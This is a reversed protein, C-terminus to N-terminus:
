FAFWRKTEKQRILWWSKFDDYSLPDPHCSQTLLVVPWPMDYGLLQSIRGLQSQALKGEPDGEVCYAFAGQLTCETSQDLPTDKVLELEGAEKTKLSEFSELQHREKLWYLVSSYVRIANDVAGETMQNLHAKTEDDWLESFSKWSISSSQHSSLVQELKKTSESGEKTRQVWWCLVDPFTIYQLKSLQPEFYRQIMEDTAEPLLMMLVQHFEVRDIRGDLTTDMELFNKWLVTTPFELYGVIEELIRQLIEKGAKSARTTAKKQEPVCPFMDKTVIDGNEGVVTKKPSAGWANVAAFM